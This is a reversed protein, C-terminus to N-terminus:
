RPDRPERPINPSGIGRWPRPRSLPLELSSPNGAGPLRRPGGRPNRFTDPRWEPHAARALPRTTIKVEAAYNKRTKPKTRKALLLTGIWSKPGKPNADM